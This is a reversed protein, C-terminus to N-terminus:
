KLNGQLKDQACASTNELIKGMGDCFITNSERASPQIENIAQGEPM